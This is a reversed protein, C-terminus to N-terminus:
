GQRADNEVVEPMPADLPMIYYGPMRALQDATWGTLRGMDVAHGELRPEEFPLLRTFLDEHGAPASALRKRREVRQQVM